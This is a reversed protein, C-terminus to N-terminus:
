IRFTFMITDLRILYLKSDFQFVFDLHSISETRLTSELCFSQRTVVKTESCDPHPGALLGEFSVSSSMMHCWRYSASISGTTPTVESPKLKFRILYLSCKTADM